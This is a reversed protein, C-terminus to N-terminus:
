SVRVVPARPPADHIAEVLLENGQRRGTVHLTASPPITTESVEFVVDDEGEGEGRLHARVEPPLDGKAISRTEHPSVDSLVYRMTDPVFRVRNGSADDLGVILARSESLAFGDDTAKTIMLMWYVCERGSLPARMTTEAVARGVIANTQSAASRSNGRRLTLAIATVIGAGIVIAWFM